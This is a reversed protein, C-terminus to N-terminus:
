IIEEYTKRTITDIAVELDMAYLGASSFPNIELVYHGREGCRAIDITWAIAPEYNAQDVMAQAFSWSPDQPECRQVCLNGDWEGDLYQSGTVIRGDVVLFRFEKDILRESAVVCLEEYFITSESQILSIEQQLNSISVTRGVFPRYGNVPKIFVRSPEDRPTFGGSTLYHYINGIPQISYEGNLLNENRFKPAYHNWDFVKDQVEINWNTNRYLWRCANISGHFFVDDQQYRIQKGKSDYFEPPRGSFMDMPVAFSDHGLKKAAAIFKDEYKPFVDKEIIWVAV